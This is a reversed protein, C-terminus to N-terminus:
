NENKRKYLQSFPLLLIKQQTENRKMLFAQLNKIYGHTKNTIGLLAELRTIEFRINKIKLFQTLNHWLIQTKTCAWFLHSFGGM